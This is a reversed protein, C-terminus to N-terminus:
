FPIKSDDIEKDSESSKKEEKKVEEKVIIDKMIESTDQKDEFVNTIIENNKIEYLLTGDEELEFKIGDNGLKKFKALSYRKLLKKPTIDTYDKVEVGDKVITVIMEYEEDMDLDPTLKSLAEDIQEIENKFDKVTEKNGEIKFKIDELQKELTAIELEYDEIAKEKINKSNLLEIKDMNSYESEEKTQKVEEKKKTTTRRRTKSETTKKVEEKIEEKVEKKVETKKDETDTDTNKIEFQEIEKVINDYEEKSPLVRNAVGYIDYEDGENLKVIALPYNAEDYTKSKDTFTIRADKSAIYHYLEKNIIYINDIDYEGTEEDIPAILILDDKIDKNEYNYIPYLFNQELIDVIEGKDDSILTLFLDFPTEKYEGNKSEILKNLEEFLISDFLGSNCGRLLLNDSQCIKLDGVLINKLEIKKIETLKSIM